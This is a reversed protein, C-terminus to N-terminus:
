ESMSRRSLWLGVGGGGGDGALCFGDVSTKFEVLLFGFLSSFAFAATWCIATSLIAVESPLLGFGLLLGRPHSENLRKNAGEELCDVAGGLFCVAETARTEETGSSTPAEGIAGEFAVECDRGIWCLNNEEGLLPVAAGIVGSLIEFLVRDRVFVECLM